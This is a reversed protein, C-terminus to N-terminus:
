SNNNSNSIEAICIYLPKVGFHDRALFLKRKKSDWLAFAFIGFHFGVGDPGRHELLNTSEKFRNM